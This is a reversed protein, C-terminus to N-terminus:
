KQEVEQEDELVGFGEPPEDSQIGNKPNLEYLGFTNPAPRTFVENKRVYASITGSLALRKDKSNEQGMASLIETIHLPRGAGKIADRARALNTGPRLTFESTGERPLLKMTEQLAQIYSEGERIKLELEHLEEEKKDIRKQLEERIGM